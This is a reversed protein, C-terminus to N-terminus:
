GGFRGGTTIPGSPMGVGFGGSAGGFGVESGDSGSFVVRVLSWDEAVVDNEEVVDDEDPHV